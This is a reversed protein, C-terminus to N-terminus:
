PLIEFGAKLFIEKAKSTQCFNFFDQAKNMNSTQNVIAISYIIPSHDEKKFEYAVRVKDQILSDTFFVIGADAEQKSVWALVERVNEGSIIKDKLKQDLHNNQLSERAYKGAPVNENAIAIHKVWPETLFFFNQAKKIRNKPVILVLRNSLLKKTLKENLIKKDILTKIWNEDASFFLDAPAGLEIQKALKGSSEFNFNTELEKEKKWARVIEPLVNMLSSAAFINLTSEMSFANTAHCMAILILVTKM